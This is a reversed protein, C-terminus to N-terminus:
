KRMCTLDVCPRILCIPPGPSVQSLPGGKCNDRNCLIGCLLLRLKVIIGFIPSVSCIIKKSSKIICLYLFSFLLLVISSYIKCMYM